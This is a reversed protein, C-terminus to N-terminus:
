GLPPRKRSRRQDSARRAAFCTSNDQQNCYKKGKKGAIVRHCRVCCNFREGDELRELLLASFFGLPGWCRRISVSESLVKHFNSSERLQAMTKVRIGFDEAAFLVAAKGGTLYTPLYWSLERSTHGESVYFGAADKAQRLAGELDTASLEAIRRM